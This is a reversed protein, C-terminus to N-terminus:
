VLGSVVNLVVLMALWVIVQSALATLVPQPLRLYLRHAQVLSYGAWLLLLSFAVVGVIPPAGILQGLRTMAPDPTPILANYGGVFVGVLATLPLALCLPVGAYVIVRVLHGPGIRAQRLTRRFIALTALTLLPWAATTAVLAASEGVDDAYWFVRSWFIATWPLPSQDLNAAIATDVSSWGWQRAAATQERDTLSSWFDRTQARERAHVWATRVPLSIYESATSSAALTAVLLALVALPWFHIPAAPSLGRWFRGPGLGGWLTALTSRVPRRRAHHEILYPHRLSEARRLEAPDFGHGCEPCRGAPLGRLDYGCLPCALAAATEADSM